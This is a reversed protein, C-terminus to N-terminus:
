QVNAIRRYSRYRGHGHKQCEILKATDLEGLVMNLQTPVIDFGQERLTDFITREPTFETISLTALVADKLPPM